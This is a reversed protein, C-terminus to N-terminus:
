RTITISKGMTSQSGGMTEVTLTAIYTVSLFFAGALTAYGIKSWEVDDGRDGSKKLLLKGAFGIAGVGAVGCLVIIAWIFMNGVDGLNQGVQKWGGGSSQAQAATAAMMLASIAFQKAKKTISIKM